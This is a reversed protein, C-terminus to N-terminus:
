MTILLVPLVWDMLSTPAPGVVPTVITAPSDATQAQFPVSKELTAVVAVTDDKLAPVVPKVGLVADVPAIVRAPVSPVAFPPVASAVNVLLPMKKADEALTMACDELRVQFPVVSATVPPKVAEASEIKEEVPAKVILL